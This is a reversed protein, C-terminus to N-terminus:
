STSRKQFPPSRLWCLKEKLWCPEEKLENFLGRKWYRENTLMCGAIAVRAWEEYLPRYRSWEEVLAWEEDPAHHTQFSGPDVATGKFVIYWRRESLDMSAIKEPSCLALYPALYPYRERGAVLDGLTCIRPLSFVLKFISELHVLFYHKKHWLFFRYDIWLCISTPHHNLVFYLCKRMTKWEDDYCQNMPFNGILPLPKKHHIM